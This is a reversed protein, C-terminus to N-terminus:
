CYLGHSIQILMEEVRLTGQSTSLMARPSKGLFRSKPKSLWNKAKETSGFVAEAM